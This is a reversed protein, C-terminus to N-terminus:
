AGDGQDEEPLLTSGYPLQMFIPTIGETRPSTVLTARRWVTSLLEARPEPRWFRFHRAGLVHDRAPHVEELWHIIAFQRPVGLVTCSLLLVLRGYWWEDDADGTTRVWDFRPHGYFDRRAHVRVRKGQDWAVAFSHVRLTGHDYTPAVGHTLLQIRARLASAVGAPTMVSGEWAPAPLVQSLGTLTVQLGEGGLEFFTDTRPAPAEHQASQRRDEQALQVALRLVKDKRTLRRAFMAPVAHKNSRVFSHAMVSAALVCAFATCARFLALMRLAYAFVCTRFMAKLQKHACESAETTLYTYPGFLHVSQPVHEVRHLKPIRSLNHVHSAHFAAHWTDRLQEGAQRLATVAAAGAAADRTANYWQVLIHAGRRLTAPQDALVVELM